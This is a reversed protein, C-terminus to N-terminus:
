SAEFRPTIRIVSGLVPTFPVVGADFREAWRLVNAADVVYYGYITGPADTVGTFTFDQAAYLGVTPADPTVTWSAATLTKSAYGGGAVETYTAATDTEGPTINNSYLKLTLNELKLYKNLALEEGVNPVVLTM